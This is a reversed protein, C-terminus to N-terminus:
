EPFTLNSEYFDLLKLPARYRMLTSPCTAVRGDVTLFEVELGHNEDSFAGTIKDIYLNWDNTIKQEFKSKQIPKVLKKVDEHRIQVPELVGPKDIVSDKETTNKKEPQATSGSKKPQNEKSPKTSNSKNKSSKNKEYEQLIETCFLNSRFEWTNDSDPYGVWKILYQKKGKYIRDDVIYEVDYVDAESELSSM